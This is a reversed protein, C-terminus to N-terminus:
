KSGFTPLYGMPNWWSTEQKAPAPQPAGSSTQGSSTQAAAPASSPTSSDKASWSMPNWWKAEKAQVQPLPKTPQRYGYPPQTLNERSPEDPSTPEGSVVRAGQRRASTQDVPFSPPRAGGDARPDPLTKRDPPVVLKPRERYDITPGDGSSVGIAAGIAGFTGTDDNGARANVAGIILFVAGLAVPAGISRANIRLSSM